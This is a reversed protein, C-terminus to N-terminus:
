GMAGLTIAQKGFKQRVADLATEAQRRAQPNDQVAEDLTLQQALGARQSLQDVKVGVLRVALGHLDIGAFLQRTAAYIEAATDTPAPLTRSRTLTHFDSTRVKFGISRGVFGQARLRGAVKDSLELIRAEVAARSAIDTDFTIENSISKEEHTPTVPRPDRAWALDYLHAGAAKGVAAQISALDTDALQATTTIGWRALREATKGGVGWLAGVPLTRVFPVSAEAPVLLM